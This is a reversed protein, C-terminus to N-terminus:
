IRITVKKRKRRTFFANLDYVSLFVDENAADFLCLRIDALIFYTGGEFYAEISFGRKVMNPISTSTDSSLLVYYFHDVIM